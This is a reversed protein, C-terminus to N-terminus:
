LKRQGGVGSGRRRRGAAACQRGAVGCGRKREAAQKSAPIHEIRVKRVPHGEMVMGAAADRELVHLQLWPPFSTPRVEAPPLEALIRQCREKAHNAPQTPAAM